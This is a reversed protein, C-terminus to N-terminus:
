EVYFPNKCHSQLSGGRNRHFLKALEGLLENERLDLLNVNALGGDGNLVSERGKLTDTINQIQNRQLDMVKLKQNNELIDLPFAEIQNDNLYFNELEDNHKTFGSPIEKLQNRSLDM